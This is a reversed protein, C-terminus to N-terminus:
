SLDPKRGERGKELIPGTRGWTDPIRKWSGGGGAAAAAAAHSPSAAIAVLLLFYM